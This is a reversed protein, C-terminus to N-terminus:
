FAALAFAYYFLVDTEVSYRINFYRFKDRYNKLFLRSDNCVLVTREFFESRHATEGSIESIKDYIDAIYRIFDKDAVIQSLAVSAPIIIGYVCVALLYPCVGGACCARFKQVFHKRERRSIREDDDASNRIYYAIRVAREFHQFFVFEACQEFGCIVCQKGTVVALHRM